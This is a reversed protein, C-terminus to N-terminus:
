IQICSLKYFNLSDHTRVNKSLNTCIRPEFIILVAYSNTQAEFFSSLNFTYVLDSVNEAVVDDVDVFYQSYDNM